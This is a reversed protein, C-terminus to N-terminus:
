LSEARARSFGAARAALHLNESLYGRLEFWAPAPDRWSMVDYHLGPAVFQLFELLSRMRSAPRVMLQKQRPTARWRSVLADLDGLLWRCKVGERSHIKSEVKAGSALALHLAPFDVGADLALQLSGWYRGNVEMLKPEGTLGDVKCEVMAPGQWKMRRLLDAALRALEEDLPVSESLVSVGGWPPKERLRRHSFAAKVEGNWMLLFVGRGEGIVREQVLPEPVPCKDYLEILEDPTWAYRVAGTRWHGFALERSRRPKVVLPFGVEEAFQLLEARGCGTITRPVGIGARYAEELMVAKNQVQELAEASASMVTVRGELQPKLPAALQVTVDSTALLHTYGMAPLRQLLFAQFAEPANYPSPYVIRERCYRSAGALSRPATEGVGVWAGARGMSRVAALTSRLNGDTVFVRPM